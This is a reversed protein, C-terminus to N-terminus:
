FEVEELVQDPKATNVLEARYDTADSKNSYIRIDYTTGAKFEYTVDGFRLSGSKDAYVQITHEGGRLRAKENGGMENTREGDVKFVGV